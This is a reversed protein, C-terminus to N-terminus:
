KYSRQAIKINEFKLDEKHLEWNSVGKFEWAAAYPVEKGEAVLRENLVDFMELFSMDPSVGDVKYTEFRGKDNTNKQRWVKLTINM